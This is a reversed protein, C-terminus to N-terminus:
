SALRVPEAVQLDAQRPLDVTFVCGLGPMDRVSLNGGSAEIARRAISLGLGLGSRDTGHQVFPQFMAEAKGTPLGGCQDEVEIMVRENTGYAKMSVHSHARTFKFANQLLNSLASGVMQKDIRITLGPQVPSLSLDCGRKTAELSASVHLEVLFAHVEVDELLKEPVGANLRVDTLARDVVDRLGALSRELVAATPGDVAVSGSRIAAFSLMATNLFNRLEHALFGLRETNERDDSESVLVDRGSAFATVADAIANDLCRNLTRFEDIGVPVNREIALETVAQCLDGYDHVVQEVTFGRRLLEHGHKSAGSMIDTRSDSRAASLAGVASRGEGKRAREEDRLAEILQGLFLPIGHDIEAPTPRPSARRVVKMRCREILETRNADLFEHLM